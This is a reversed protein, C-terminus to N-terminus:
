RGFRARVYAGVTWFQPLDGRLDVGQEAAPAELMSVPVAVKGPAGSVAVLGYWTFLYDFQLGIAVNRHVHVGFGIQLPVYLGHFALKARGGETHYRARFLNYGVGTGVYAAFRGRPIFHVRVDLGAQVTDLSASNVIFQSFDLMDRAEEPLSDNRLGYLGLGDTGLPVENGIAAWGADLGLDVFGAINGGLFGDVRFGPNAGHRKCLRRTCGLVGIRADLIAGSHPTRDALWRSDSDSDSDSESGPQTATLSLAAALM